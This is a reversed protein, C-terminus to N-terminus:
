ARPDTRRFLEYDIGRHRLVAYALFGVGGVIGGTVSLWGTESAAGIGLAIVGAASVLAALGSDVHGEDRNLTETLQQHM